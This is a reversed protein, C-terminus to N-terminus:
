FIFSDCREMFKCMQCSAISLTESMTKWKVQTENIIRFWRTNNWCLFIAESFFQFFFNFFFIPCFSTVFNFENCDACKLQTAWLSPCWLPMLMMEKRPNSSNSLCYVDLAPIPMLYYNLVLFVMRNEYTNEFSFLEFPEWECIIVLLFFNDSFNGTKKM